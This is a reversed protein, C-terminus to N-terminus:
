IHILSLSIIVGLAVWLGFIIHVSLWGNYYSSPGIIGLFISIGFWFPFWMYISKAARKFNNIGLYYAIISYAYCGFLLSSLTNTYILYYDTLHVWNFGWDILNLGRYLTIYGIGIGVDVCWAVFFVFTPLSYLTTKKLIRNWFWHYKYNGYILGLFGVIGFAIIISVIVIEITIPPIDNSPFYFVVSEFSGLVPYYDKSQASGPIDYPTDGISNNDADIGSYDEWYNGVKGYDWKNESGADYANIGNRSFNNLYIDNNNGFSDLYLGYLSNNHILNNTIINYRSNSSGSIMLGVTNRSINNLQITNSSSDFLNIGDDNNIIVNKEITQYEGRSIYIGFNTNNVINNGVIINYNSDYNGNNKINIGHRENFEISNNIIKNYNSIADQPDINIGDSGSNTINNDLISVSESNKWQSYLAIGYNDSNNIKNGQITINKSAYLRIGNRNNSLDNEIIRGNNTNYLYIGEYGNYFTNNKLIFYVDSNKIEIGDNGQWDITVNEIIYPDNWTGSGNVWDNTAATIAWNNLPDNDDIYIPSGTLIWHDAKNLKFYKENDLPNIGNSYSLNISFFIVSVFIVWILINFTAVMKKKKTMFKKGGM